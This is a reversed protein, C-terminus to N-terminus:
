DLAHHAPELNAPLQTGRYNEYVDADLGYKEAAAYSCGKKFKEPFKGEDFSLTILRALLQAFTAARTKIVSASLKDLTLAKEVHSKDHQVSAIYTYNTYVCAARLFFAFVASQLVIV